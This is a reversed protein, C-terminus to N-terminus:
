GTRRYCSASGRLNYVPRFAFTIQLNHLLLALKTLHPYRVTYRLIRREEDIVRFWYLKLPRSLRKQEAWAILNYLDNRRYFANVIMRLEQLSRWTKVINIIVNYM